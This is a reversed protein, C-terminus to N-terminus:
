NKLIYSVKRVKELVEEGTETISYRVDKKSQEDRVVLNYDTLVDLRKSITDSSTSIEKEITSYNLPSKQDLLELIELTRKPGVVERVKDYSM